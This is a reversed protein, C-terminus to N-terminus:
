KFIWVADFFSVDDLYHGLLGTDVEGRVVVVSGVPPRTGTWEFSIYHYDGDSIIMINNLSSYLEGKITVQTGDDVVGDIIDEIPIVGILGDHYAIVCFAVVTIISIALIPKRLTSTKKSKKKPMPM